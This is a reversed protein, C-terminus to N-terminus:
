RPGEGVPPAWGSLAKEVHELRDQGWFLQKVHTLVVFSPAGFIGENVAQDTRERLEDKIRAEGARRVAEDGGLGARDLASAVVGPESLDLADVWYAHFLARTALPIDGSALIARLADVTRNPHTEPMVLPVRFRAAWRDMDLRNHRAKAINMASMPVQPAGIAKFVGGLLFPRYELVAGARAALADIQTSALYAYPCVVDYYFAIRKV